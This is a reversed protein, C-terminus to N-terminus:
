WTTPKWALQPVFTFLEESYVGLTLPGLTITWEDTATEELGVYEGQLVESLFVREHHWGITGNPEVRRLELHAPYDFPPVRRPFPRSSPRYHTAPPTNGLAEHPRRENFECRWREFRAQQSTRSASPPRTAEAKLTRHMREHVGNQQPAGREIREPRIGFHLWWVALPSLGGLANPSAFPVGNDTRIVRPLGYDAFCRQFSGAVPATSVSELAIVALVYRSHLDGITLPFCYAGHGLRFQGKFDASWVDNPAGAPTLPSRAWTTRERVSRRRRTVLGLRTLLATITSPAPWRVQPQEATLVKRLKRAGWTPHAERLACLQRVIAPAVQHAPLHPARSQDALAAPGGSSFRQIWKHGTKESIGTARCIDVISEGPARHLVADIFTLRQSMLSHTQWPM